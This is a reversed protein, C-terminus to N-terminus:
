PVGLVAASGREEVLLSLGDPSFLIQSIYSTNPVTYETILESTEVSYFFITSGNAVALIQSDKSLTISTPWDTYITRLRAGQGTFNWINVKSSAPYMEGVGALLYSGDGALDVDLIYEKFVPNNIVLPIKNARGNEHNLSFLMVEDLGYDNPRAALLMIWNGDGSFRLTKLTNTYGTLRFTFEGTGADIVDVYTSNVSYAVLNHNHDFAVVGPGGCNDALASPQGSTGIQQSYLQGGICYFISEESVAASGLVQTIHGEDDPNAQITVAEYVNGDLWYKLLSETQLTEPDYTFEESWFTTASGFPIMRVVPFFRAEDIRIQATDTDALWVSLMFPDFYPNYQDLESLDVSVEDEDDLILGTEIEVLVYM